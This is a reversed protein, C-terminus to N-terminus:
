RLELPQLSFPTTLRNWSRDIHLYGAVCVIKHFSALLHQMKLFLVKTVTACSKPDSLAERALPLRVPSRHRASASM